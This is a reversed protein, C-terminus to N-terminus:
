YYSAHFRLFIASFFARSAFIAGKQLKNQKPFDTRASEACPVNLIRPCIKLNRAPLSVTTPIVSQKTMNGVALTVYM